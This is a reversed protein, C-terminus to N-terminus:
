TLIQTMITHVAMIFPARVPQLPQDAVDFFLITGGMEAADFVHRLNKETEGIYKSVVQSPDIRYSDLHLENALVKSAVTKGTGSGGTFFVSIVVYIVARDDEAQTSFISRCAGTTLFIYLFLVM